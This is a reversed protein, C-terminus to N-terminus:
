VVFMVMVVSGRLSLSVSESLTNDTLLRNEKEREFLLLSPKARSTGLGLRFKQYSAWGRWEEREREFRRLYGYKLRVYTDRTYMCM